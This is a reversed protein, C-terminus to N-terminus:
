DKYMRMAFLTNQLQNTKMSNPSMGNYILLFKFIHAYTNTGTKNATVTRIRQNQLLKYLLVKFPKWIAKHDLYKFYNSSSFQFAYIQYIIKGILIREEQWNQRGHNVEYNYTATNASPLPCYVGPFSSRFKTLKRISTGLVPALLCHKSWTYYLYLSKMNIETM